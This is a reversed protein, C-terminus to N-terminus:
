LAEEDQAVIGLKCSRPIKISQSRDLKIAGAAHPPMHACTPPGHTRDRRAM